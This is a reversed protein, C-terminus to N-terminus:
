VVIPPKSYVRIELFAVYGNIAGGAYDLQWLSIINPGIITAQLVAGNSSQQLTTFIATNEFGFVQSGLVEVNGIGNYSFTLDQGLTNQLVVVTPNATGAQTLMGTWVKIDQGEKQKTIM